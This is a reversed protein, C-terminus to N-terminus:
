NERDRASSSSTTTTTTTCVALLVVRHSNIINCWFYRHNHAALTSTLKKVEMALRQWGGSADIQIFCWATTWLVFTWCICLFPESNFTIACTIFVSTKRLYFLTSHSWFIIMSSTHEICPVVLTLTDTHTSICLYLGFRTNWPALESLKEWEYILCQLLLWYVLKQPWQKLLKQKQFEFNTTAMAARWRNTIPM